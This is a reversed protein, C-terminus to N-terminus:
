GPQPEQSSPNRRHAPPPQQRPVALDFRVTDSIKQTTVQLASIGSKLDDVKGLLILWGGVFVGLLFVAATIGSILLGRNENRLEKIDSDRLTRMEGRAEDLLDEIHEVRTTLAVWHADYPSAGGGAAGTGGPGTNSIVRSM